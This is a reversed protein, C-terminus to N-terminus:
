LKSIDIGLRKAVEPHEVLYKEVNSNVNYLVRGTEDEAVQVGRNGKQFWHFQQLDDSRGKYLGRPPYYTGTAYIDPVEDLMEYSQPNNGEKIKRWSVKANIRADPHGERKLPGRARLANFQEKGYRLDEQWQARSRKPYQARVAAAKAPAQRPKLRFPRELMKLLGSMKLAKGVVAELLINGAMEAAFAGYPNEYRVDRLGQKFARRGAEFSHQADTGEPGFLYDNAMQAAGAVSAANDDGIASWLPRGYKILAEALDGM